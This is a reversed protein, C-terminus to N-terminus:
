SYQIKQENCKKRNQTHKKWIKSASHLVTYTTIDCNNEIIIVNIEISLVQYKVTSFAIFLKM